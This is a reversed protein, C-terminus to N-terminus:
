IVKCYLLRAEASVGSLVFSGCLTVTNGNEIIFANEDNVSEDAKLYVDSGKALVTVELGECDVRESNGSLAIRRTKVPIKECYNM